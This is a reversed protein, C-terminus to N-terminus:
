DLRADEVRWMGLHLPGVPAYGLVDLTLHLATATSEQGDRLRSVTAPDLDDLVASVAHEQDVADPRLLRLGLTPTALATRFDDACLLVVVPLGDTGFHRSLRLCERLLDGFQRGTQPPQGPGPRRPFLSAVAVPGGHERRVLLSVRPGNAGDYGAEPWVATDGAKLVFGIALDARLGAETIPLDDRRRAALREALWAFVARPLSTDPKPPAAVRGPVFDM